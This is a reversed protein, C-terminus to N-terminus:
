NKTRDIVKRHKVKSFNTFNPAKKKIETPPTRWTSELQFDVQRVGGATETSVVEVFIWKVFGVLIEPSKEVRIVPGRSFNWSFACIETKQIDLPFIWRIRRIRNGRYKREPPNKTSDWKRLCPFYDVRFWFGGFFPNWFGGFPFWVKPMDLYSM